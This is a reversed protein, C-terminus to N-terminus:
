CQMLMADATCCCARPASRAACFLVAASGFLWLVAGADSRVTSGTSAVNWLQQQQQQQQLVFLCFEFALM